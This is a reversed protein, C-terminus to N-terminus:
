QARGSKGLITSTEGHRGGEAARIHLTIHPEQGSACTRKYGHHEVVQSDDAYVMGQLVDLTIKWLNQVDWKARAKKYAHMTVSVPGAYPLWAQHDISQEWLLTAAHKKWLRGHKSLVMRVKPNGHTDYVIRGQRDKVVVPIYLANVSVPVPLAFNLAWQEPAPADRKPRADFISVAQPTLRYQRVQADTLGLRRQADVWTPYTPM